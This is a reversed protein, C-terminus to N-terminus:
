RLLHHTANAAWYALWSRADVAREGTLFMGIEFKKRQGAPEINQSTFFLAEGDIDVFKAHMWEIGLVEAGVDALAGLASANEASPHCVIRVNVGRGLARALAECVPSDAFVQYSTVVVSTRAAAVLGVIETTLLDGDVVSSRIASTPIADGTQVRVAPVLVNGPRIETEADWFRGRAIAFVDAVEAEDLIVAVEPSRRLADENLNSSLLIGESARLPDKLVFKAHWGPASRVLCKGSLEVLAREHEKIKDREGAGIAARDLRLASEVSTLVYVRVGRDAAALLARRISSSAVLFSGVVLTETAGSVLRLVEGLLNTQEGNGIVWSTAPSACGGGQRQGWRM